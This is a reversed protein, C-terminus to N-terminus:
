VQVFPHDISKNVFLDHESLSVVITNRCFQGHKTIIDYIDEQSGDFADHNIFVRPVDGVKTSDFNELDSQNGILVLCQSGHYAVLDAFFDSSASSQSLFIVLLCDFWRRRQKLM